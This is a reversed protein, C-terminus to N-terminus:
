AEGKNCRNWLWTLNASTEGQAKPAGDNGRFYPNLKRGAPPRAAETMPELKFEAGNAVQPGDFTRPVWGTGLCRHEVFEALTQGLMRGAISDLPFHLGAVVRNTAIREAQRQLVDADPATLGRLRELLRAMMFAETAHGSPLASFGPTLIMPQLTRSYKVPRPCALIQKVRQIVFSAFTMAIDCFELTKPTRDPSLNMIASWYAMQPGMQSVIEPSREARLVAFEEVRKAQAEFAAQTPRLLTAVAVGKRAGTRFTIAAGDTVANIHLSDLLEVIMVKARVDPACAALEDPSDLEPLSATKDAKARRGPQPSKPVPLAPESSVTKSPTLLSERSRILGEVLASDAADGGGGGDNTRWGQNGRWGQNQRWGQWGEWGQNGSM